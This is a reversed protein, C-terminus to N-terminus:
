RLADRRILRATLVEDAPVPRDGVSARMVAARAPGIGDEDQGIHIQSDM